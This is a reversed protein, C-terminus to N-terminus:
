ASEESQHNTVFNAAAERDAWVTVNSHARILTAPWAPDFETGRMMRDFATRKAQGHVVMSLHRASLITGLGVSIGHTPVDALSRFSPFTGLNDTRTTAALEVVRTTSSLQTGPPNLAVHGDSAGSAVIFEEIGGAAGIRDDYEAPDQPDAYWLNLQPIGREDGVASSLVARVQSDGFGVCSHREDRDVLRLGHGSPTLYEDMMVLVVHRLDLPKRRLEAALAAVVPVITRGAPIGILCQGSREAAAAIRQHLRRAVAQSLLELEDYVRLDM